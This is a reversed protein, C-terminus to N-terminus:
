ATLDLITDAEPADLGWVDWGTMRQRAFLEIRRVERGFVRHIVDYQALPKQSHRERQSLLLNSVAVGPVPTLGRGRRGLLCLEGNSRTYRGFGVAPTKDANLKGWVLFTTRYAFGWSEMVQLGERLLPLTVWLLLVADRACISPVPLACIDDLTMTPYHDDAVRGTGGANWSDYQWPPDALVLRYDKHPLRGFCSDSEAPVPPVQPMSFLVTM